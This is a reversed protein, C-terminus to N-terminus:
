LHMSSLTFAFLALFQAAEAARQLLGRERALAPVAFGLVFLWMAICAVLALPRWPAPLVRAALLAALGGGPYQFLGGLMHLLQDTHSLWPREPAIPFLAALVYSAGVCAALAAAAKLSEDANARSWFWAGLLLTALGIPLFVGFSVMRAFPGGLQGLESIMQRRHDFSPTQRGILTVSFMLWLPVACALVLAVASPLNVPM